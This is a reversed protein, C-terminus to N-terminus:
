LRHIRAEQISEHLFQSALAHHRGNRSSGPSKSQLPAVLPEVEKQLALVRAAQTATDTRACGLALVCTSLLALAFAIKM